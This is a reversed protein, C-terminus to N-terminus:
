FTRKTGSKVSGNKNLAYTVSQIPTITFGYGEMGSARYDARIKETTWNYVGSRYGKEVKGIYSGNRSIRVENSKLSMAYRRADDLNDFYRGGAHYTTM